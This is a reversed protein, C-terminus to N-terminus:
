IVERAVLDEYSQRRVVLRHSGEDTMIVAPILQRNYNSAMSFGYAGTTHVVVIDGSNPMPLLADKILIDGSECAKGALTVLHDKEDGYRNALDARYKAQYLSPRINDTMGGDIAVYTRVHPINKVAGVEYLTIGAPGVIWRGPEIVIMPRTMDSSEFASDIEKMIDELIGEVDLVEQDETYPIGFGGGINLIETKFGQEIWLKEILKHLIQFARIHLQNDFLQSGIHFHFGKLEISDMEEIEVLTKEILEKDIQFGFKTDRQGTIIYEHTDIETLGPSLRLLIKQRKGTKQLMENLLKLEYSNDVVIYGVENEIAMQIEQRSKNNGHFFIREVPMGAKLATYFEGGSVVDMGIGEESVIRAMELTMFAKSAYLVETREFKGKFAKKLLNIRDRIMRESMVYLPTGYEETLKVTDVGDFIFHNNNNM